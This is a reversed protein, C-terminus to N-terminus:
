RATQPSGGAHTHGPLTPTPAGPTLARAGCAAAADAFDELPEALEDPTLRELEAAIAAPVIAAMRTGGETIYVVQGRALSVHDALVDAVTPPLTM